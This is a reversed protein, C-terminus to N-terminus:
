ILFHLFVPVIEELRKREAARSCDDVIIVQKPLLSQQALSHLATEIFKSDNFYPIVVCCEPPSIYNISVSFDRISSCKRNVRFELFLLSADKSVFKYNSVEGFRTEEILKDEVTSIRAQM